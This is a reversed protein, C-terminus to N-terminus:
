RRAIFNGGFEVATEGHESIIAQLFLRGRGTRALEERFSERMAAPPREASARLVGTVPRRFRVSADRVVVHCDRDGVELWIVAYGALMALANLSGGFATGLHNHNPELPATLVLKEDDYREVRVGMANTLPIQEHLYNEIEAFNM